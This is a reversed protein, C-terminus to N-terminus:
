FMYNFKDIVWREKEAVLDIAEQNYYQSYPKTYTSKNLHNTCSVNKEINITNLFNQIDTDLTDTEAFLDILVEGKDDVIYDEQPEQMKITKILGAADNFSVSTLFRLCDRGQYIKAPPWLEKDSDPTDRYELGYKKNYLYFSVYRKWPDRVITFKTYEGWICLGKYIKNFNEKIDKAKSHQKFLEGKYGPYGYFDIIGLPTLTKNLSVTGTKPIDITIFKHQHSILM